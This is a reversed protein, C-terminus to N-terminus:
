LNPMEGHKATKFKEMILASLTSASLFAQLFAYFMDIYEQDCAQWCVWVETVKFIIDLSFCPSHMM